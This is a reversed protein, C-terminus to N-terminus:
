IAIEFSEFEDLAESWVYDVDQIHDQLHSKQVAETMKKLEAETGEAIMEVRGNALNRVFGTIDFQAALSQVMYRFGVGQVHGRYLARVRKM